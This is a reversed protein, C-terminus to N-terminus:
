IYILHLGRENNKHKSKTILGYIRDSIEKRVRQGREGKVKSFTKM